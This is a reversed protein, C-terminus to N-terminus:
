ELTLAVGSEILAVSIPTGNTGTQETIENRRPMARRVNEAYAVERRVRKRVRNVLRGVDIM